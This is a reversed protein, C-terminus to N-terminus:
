SKPTWQQVKEDFTASFSALTLSGSVIAVNLQHDSWDFKVQDAHIETRSDFEYGVGEPDPYSHLNEIHFYYRYYNGRFLSPEDPGNVEAAFKDNPSESRTFLRPQCSLALGLIALLGAVSAM